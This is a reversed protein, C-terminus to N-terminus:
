LNERERFQAISEARAASLHWRDLLETNQESKIKDRLELPVEGLTELLQLIDDTKGIAIGEYRVYEDEDFRDRKARWYGDYLARIARIMGMHKVVEAVDKMRENKQAIQDIEDQSTANFLRIWDDVGNGHLEKGLEIIHVEWLNTLEEGKENRLRYINHYTKIDQLLNFDLLSISICRHLKGYHEGMLLDDTYMRGLYYLNRKTFHRQAHVQMEIGIRTDDNLLLLVDLIGQKQRRFFKRLFPNTLRVSKIQEMPIELVDSLFQKRVQEHAFLEKFADDAKLTFREV